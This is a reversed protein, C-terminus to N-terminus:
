GFPQKAYGCYEGLPIGKPCHKKNMHYGPKVEPHYERLEIAKVPDCKLNISKFGEVDCLAYMKGAVKFVLATEGFPFGETTEPLSLCYNRFQEINM